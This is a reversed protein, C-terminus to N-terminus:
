GQTYNHELKMEVIPKYWKLLNEATEKFKIVHM